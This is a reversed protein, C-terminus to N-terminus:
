LLSTFHADQQVEKREIGHQIALLFAMSRTRPWHLYSPLKFQLLQPQILVVSRSIVPEILAEGIKTVHLNLELLSMM